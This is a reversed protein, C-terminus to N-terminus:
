RALKRVAELHVASDRSESVVFRHCRDLRARWEDPMATPAGSPGNLYLVQEDKLPDFSGGLTSAYFPIIPSKRAGTEVYSKALGFMQLDQPDIVEIKTGPALDGRVVTLTEWSLVTLSFDEQDSPGSLRLTLSDSGLPRAVVIVQAQPVVEDTPVEEYHIQSM